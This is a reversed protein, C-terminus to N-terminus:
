GHRDVCAVFCGPRANHVHLYAIAPDAFWRAIFGALETGPTVEAERLLGGADYGRVSLLRRLLLEPVTDVHRARIAGRRVYIPGSARYPSSVDHHLYSVLVLEDGVAADVLSVRCPYGPGDAVVRRAGAAALEADSLAFTRAFPAPDLGTISFM